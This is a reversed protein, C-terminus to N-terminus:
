RGIDYFLSLVSYEALKDKKKQDLNTRLFWLSFKRHDIMDGEDIVAEQNTRVKFQPLIQM